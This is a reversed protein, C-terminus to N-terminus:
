ALGLQLLAFGTIAAADQQPTRDTLSDMRRENAGWAMDLIAWAVAELDVTGAIEGAEVGEKLIGVFHTHGARLLEHTSAWSSSAWELSGM